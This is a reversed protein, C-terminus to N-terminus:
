LFLSHHSMKQFHLSFIYNAFQQAFKNYLLHSDSPLGIPYILFLCFVHCFRMAYCRYLKDNSQSLRLLVAKSKVQEPLEPGGWLLLPLSCCEEAEIKSCTSRIDREESALLRTGLLIWSIAICGIAAGGTWFETSESRTASVLLILLSTNRLHQSHKHLVTHRVLHSTLLDLKRNDPTRM